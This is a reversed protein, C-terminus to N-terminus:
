NERNLAEAGTNDDSQTHEDAADRWGERLLDRAQQADGLVAILEQYHVYPAAWKEVESIAHGSEHIDAGIHRLGSAAADQDGNLALGLEHAETATLEVMHVGVQSLRIMVYGDLTWGHSDEGEVVLVDGRQEVTYNTPLYDQVVDILPSGFRTSDAPTTVKATRKM